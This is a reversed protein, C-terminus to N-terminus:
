LRCVVSSLCVSLRVPSLMYRVESFVLIVKQKTVSLLPM